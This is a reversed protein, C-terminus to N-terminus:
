EVVVVDDDVVCSKFRSAILINEFSQFITHEADFCSKDYPNGGKSRHQLRDPSVEVLEEDLGEDSGASSADALRIRAM